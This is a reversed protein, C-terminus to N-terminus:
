CCRFGRARSPARRCHARPAAAGTPHPTRRSGPDCAAAPRADHRAPHPSTGPWARSSRRCPAARPWAPRRSRAASRCRRWAPSARRALEGLAVQQRRHHAFERFQLADHATVVGGGVALGGLDRGGDVLVVHRTAGAASQRGRPAPVATASASLSSVSAPMKAMPWFGLPVLSGTRGAGRRWRHAACGPPSSARDRDARAPLVRLRAAARASRSRRSAFHPVVHDFAQAGIEEIWRARGADGVHARLHEIRHAGALGTEGSSKPARSCASALKRASGSAALRVAALLRM